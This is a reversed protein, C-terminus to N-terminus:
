VRRIKQLFRQCFGPTAEPRAQYGLYDTQAMIYGDHSFMVESIGQDIFDVGQRQGTYSWCLYAVPHERGWCFDKVKFRPVSVAALRKEYIMIVEDVGRVEHLPDRFFMGPTALKHLLPLSRSSMKELFQIYDELPKQLAM